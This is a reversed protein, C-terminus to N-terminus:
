PYTEEDATRRDARDEVTGAAASLFRACGRLLGTALIV